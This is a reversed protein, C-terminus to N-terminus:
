QKAGLLPLLVTICCGPQTIFRIEGGLSEARERMGQLGFGTKNQQLNFGKGNDAIKLYLIPTATDAASQIELKIDVRTAESHKQINTLAEELIRYASVQYRDPIHIPLRIQVTPQIGSIYSFEAILHDVAEEFLKGQLPDSRLMLIAQRLERRAEAGLRKSDELFAQAEQSNSKLSLAINELVVSQATLLHGLSDHIERAIRTREQLTAQDEIQLSYQYLQEHALALKRRGQRESVLSSVVLLVFILILGFSLLADSLLYLISNQLFVSAQQVQESNFSLNLQVSGDPQTVMGPINTNWDKIAVFRLVGWLILFPALTIPYILWVLGAITWRERREYMVSSRLLVVILLPSLADLGWGQLHAITGLLIFQVLLYVWKAM